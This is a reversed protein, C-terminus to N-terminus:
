PQGSIVEYRGPHVVIPAPFGRGLVKMGDTNTGEPDQFGANVVAQFAEKSEWIVVNIYHYASESGLAKYFTSGVSGPQQSFYEVYRDRVEEAFSEMGKPMEIANIVHLCSM